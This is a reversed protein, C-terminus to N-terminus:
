CGPVLGEAHAVGTRAAHRKSRTRPVAVLLWWRLGDGAAAAMGPGDLYEKLQPLQEPDDYCDLDIAIWRIRAIDDDGACEGAGVERADIPDLSVPNATM